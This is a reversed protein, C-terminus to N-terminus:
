ARFRVVDDPEVIRPLEHPEEITFSDGNQWQDLRGTLVAGNDLTVEVPTFPGEDTIDRVVLVIVNQFTGMWGNGSSSLDIDYDGGKPYTRDPRSM